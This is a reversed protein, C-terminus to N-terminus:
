HDILPMFKYEPSKHSVAAHPVKLAFRYAKKQPFFVSEKIKM